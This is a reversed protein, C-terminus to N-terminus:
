NRPKVVRDSMISAAREADDLIMAFSTAEQARGQSRQLEDLSAAMMADRKREAYKKTAAKFQEWEQPAARAMQAAAPSLDKDETVRVSM